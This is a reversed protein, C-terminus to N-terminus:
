GAVERFRALTNRIAVDGVIRTRPDTALEAADIVDLMARLVAPSVEVGLPFDRSEAYKRLRDTTDSM